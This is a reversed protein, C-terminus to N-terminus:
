LFINELGKRKPVGYRHRATSTSINQCTSGVLVLRDNFHFCVLYEDKIKLFTKFSYIMKSKINCYYKNRNLRRIVIVNKKHPSKRIMSISQFNM